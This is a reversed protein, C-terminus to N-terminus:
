THLMTTHKETISVPVTSELEESISPLHTDAAAAADAGEAEEAGVGFLKKLM